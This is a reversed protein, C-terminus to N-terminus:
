FKEYLIQAVNFQWEYDIDFCELEDMPYLKIGGEKQFDGMFRNQSILDLRSAYLVHAAKYTVEVAKTNMITQGEPWPTVLMGSNNWFYDKMSIVGFLNDEPQNIFESIFADITEIKLLPSCANVKIVYKFPLKDHWEYIKQLSNDNNASEESRNYINLGYSKAINKLEDEFASVYINEKPMVKSKLLKNIAIEFLNSDLFPKLMKKPVRQSNMRAQLIVVVDSISKM